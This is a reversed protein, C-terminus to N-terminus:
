WVKPTFPELNPIFSGDPQYGYKANKPPNKPIFLGQYGNYISQEIIENADYGAEHWKSLQKLQKQITTPKLPHGIEKRHKIWDSWTIPNIFLPLQVTQIKSIASNAKPSLQTIGNKAIVAEEELQEKTCTHGIAEFAKGFDLPSKIQSNSNSNSNSNEKAKLTEKKAELSSNEKPPLPTINDTKNIDTNIDTGYICKGKKDFSHAKKTLDTKDNEGFANATNKWWFEENQFAYWLTRDRKDENFNGTILVDQKILSELTYRIQRVSWFPFLESLANMSNYTWTRGEYYHKNNAYNKIIWFKFNNIMIAENVGYKEADKIDFSYNM